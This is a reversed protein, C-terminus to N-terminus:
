ENSMNRIINCGFQVNMIKIELKKVLRPPPGKMSGSYQYERNVHINGYRTLRKGLRTLASRAYDM